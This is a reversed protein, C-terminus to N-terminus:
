NFLIKLGYKIKLRGEWFDFIKLMKLSKPLPNKTDKDFTIKM